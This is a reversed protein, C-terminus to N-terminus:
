LAVASGTRSAEHVADTFAMYRVGTEFDNLTVPEQGRIAAVFAEEVRWSGRESDPIAVPEFSGGGMAIEVSAAGMDVRLAGKTGFLTAANPPDYRSYASVEFTAVVRGPFRASVAVHDAVDVPARGGEDASLWPAYNELVARVDTAHGLWRAVSEYVIGLTMVNNGSFRRQRRWTEAAPGPASGWTVRATRVDGITGELLIRRVAADAFFSFPGPVVMAVRDPRALSAALMARAEAGDMAMRGECLVHKGAQLAAITIPAHLYPWTAVVVADLDPDAVLAAWSDHARAIGLEVAAREAREPSTAAVAAVEVGPLARLGPVHRSRAIGGPGVLGVRVNDSM